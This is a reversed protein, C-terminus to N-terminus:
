IDKNILQNYWDASDNEECVEWMVKLFFDEIGTHQSLKRIITEKDMGKDQLSSIYKDVEIM